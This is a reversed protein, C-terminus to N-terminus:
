LSFHGKVPLGEERFEGGGQHGSITEGKVEKSAHINIHKENKSLELIM